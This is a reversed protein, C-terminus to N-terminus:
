HPYPYLLLAFERRTMEHRTRLLQELEEQFLTQNHKLWLKM